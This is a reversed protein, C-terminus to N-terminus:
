LFAVVLVRFINFVPFVPVSWPGTNGVVFGSAQVILLVAGALYVLIFVAGALLLIAYVGL